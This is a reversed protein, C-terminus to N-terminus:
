EAGPAGICGGSPVDGDGAEHLGAAGSLVRVWRIWDAISRPAPKTRARGTLLRRSLGRRRAAREIRNLWPAYDALRAIARTVAM